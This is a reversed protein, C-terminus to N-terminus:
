ILNPPPHPTTPSQDTTAKFFFFFVQLQKINTSICNEWFFFHSQNSYVDYLHVCSRSKKKKKFGDRGAVLLGHFAKEGRGREGERRGREM